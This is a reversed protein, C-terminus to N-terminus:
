LSQQRYLFGYLFSDLGRQAVISSDQLKLTGAATNRPNAYLPEGAEEREKNIKDFSKRPLFVEGRIEFSAPYGNSKLKLPISRITRVNFTVEEGEVGDGRTVARTLEGNEYTIGIAVGDYKLECVYEVEGDVLKKLRTEWDKIDEISYSNELSLMPYKHKVTPFNKTIDGGVRKTPSNPSALQPYQEELKKLQVLMQDFDYDSIVPQAKVYYLYNHHNLEETLKEIEKKAEQENM